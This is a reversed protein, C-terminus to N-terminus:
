IFTVFNVLIFLLFILLYDLWLMVKSDMSMSRAQTHYTICCVNLWGSDNRQPMALTLSDFIYTSDILNCRLV